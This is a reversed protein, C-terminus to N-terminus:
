TNLVRREFCMEYHLCAMADPCMNQAKPLTPLPPASTEGEGM